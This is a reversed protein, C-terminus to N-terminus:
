TATATRTRGPLQLVTFTALLTFGFVAYFVGHPLSHDMLWGYFVPTAFSGVDLGAYVFGYVRGTAGPPTAGRVILDRSPYTLGVATGAGALALPLAAPAIAGAAVSLMACASIVMGAAAVFDPRSTRSVVFGGLLMGGASGVMYATVASSALTAAVGFEDNMAAVGFSMLGTLAAAHLAFFLFCALVRGSLLVRADDMSPTKKAELQKERLVAFQNMNFLLLLFIGCAAGAGALLATHWGFLSALTASFVPAIAFGLSGAVGHAGFAHGLRPPSVRGNLISFDAPHFVSNGLGSVSAGLLLVGPGHALSMVATGLSMLAVGGLLVGRGGYRDVVFGALPQLLASVAYLLAAVLGLTAYTVGLEERMLPFLPPLVLQMFHSTAHGLAVLSIVLPDNRKM